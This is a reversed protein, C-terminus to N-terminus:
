VLLMKRPDEVYEKVRVLSFLFLADTDMGFHSCRGFVISSARFCLVEMVCCVVRQDCFCHFFFPAALVSGFLLFFVGVLSPLLKEGMWCDITM